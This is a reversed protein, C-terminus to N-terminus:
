RSLESCIQPIHKSHIKGILKRVPINLKLAVIVASGYQHQEMLEPLMAPTLKPLLEYPSFCTRSSLGYVLVGFNTAVAFQRDTAVLGSVALEMRRSRKSVDLKRAGPLYDKREEDSASEQELENLNMGEKINRSNLWDVVGDIDRNCTLLFKKLLLRHKIDYLLM